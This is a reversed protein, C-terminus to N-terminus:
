EHRNDVEDMTVEKHVMNQPLLTVRTYLLLVVLNM